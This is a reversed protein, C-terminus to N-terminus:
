VAVRRDNRIRDSRGPTTRKREMHRALLDRARKLRQRLTSATVGCVGAAEIPELGEVAVLLLVERYIPPLAALGAEFRAELENGATQEFPSSIPAPPWLGIGDDRYSEELMRSRCYSVHLNRAVTFLWPGLRTDPQLRGAHTVLRLWTEELLDEARERNRMLRALFSFLRANFEHYVVDFAAADGARLREVLESESERDM